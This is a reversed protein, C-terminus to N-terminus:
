SKVKRRDDFGNCHVPEEGEKLDWIEIADYGSVSIQIKNEICFDEIFKIIEEETKANM